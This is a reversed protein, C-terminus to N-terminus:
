FNSTDKERGARTGLARWTDIDVCESLFHVSADLLAANVGGPHRSQASSMAFHFGIWSVDAPLYGCSYLNPPGGMGILYGRGGEGMYPLEGKQAWMGEGLAAMTRCAEVQDDLYRRAGAPTGALNPAVDIRPSSYWVSVDNPLYRNTGKVFESFALTRGDGDVIAARRLGGKLQYGAWQDTVNVIGNPRWAAHSPPAPPHDARVGHGGNIGYNVLTGGNTGTLATEDSPCLFAPIQPGTQCITYNRDSPLYQDDYDLAPWSFNMRDYLGQQELFPLLMALHGWGGSKPGSGSQGYRGHIPFNAHTEVYNQLAVGLNHLNAACQARRAAERAAQIAPLLLAILMGVIAIATLLEVLTFARNSRVQM